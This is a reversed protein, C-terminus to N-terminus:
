RFIRKCNRFFDHHEDDADHSFMHVLIANYLGFAENRLVIETSEDLGDAADRVKIAYEYVPVLGWKELYDWTKTMLSPLEINKPRYTVHAM